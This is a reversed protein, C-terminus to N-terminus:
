DQPCSQAPSLSPQPSLGGCTNKGKVALVAEEAWHAPVSGHRPGCLSPESGRPLYPSACLVFM